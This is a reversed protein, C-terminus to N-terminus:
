SIVCRKKKKNKQSSINTNNINQKSTVFMSPLKNAVIWKNENCRTPNGVNTIKNNVSHLLEVVSNMESYPSPFDVNFIFEFIKVIQDPSLTEEDLKDLCPDCIGFERMLQLPEGYNLWPNKEYIERSENLFDDIVDIPEELQEDLEQWFKVVNKDDTCLRVIVQVPYKQIQKLIPVINGDSSIGDTAIVLTAVQNGSMLNHKMSEIKKKINKLHICLPTGGSPSMSCKEYLANLSRISNDGTGIVIPHLQNLFIFETPAQAVHVLGGIFRLSKCMENYRTCPQILRNTGQQVIMNGDSKIMSSSDDCVIYRIPNKVFSKTIENVLGPTWNTPHGNQPSQLFEMINPTFDCLYPASPVIDTGPQNIMIKNTHCQQILLM